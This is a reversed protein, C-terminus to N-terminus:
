DYLGLEQSLRTLEALGKDCERDRIQKYTMLDTFRIRRHTGVMRFPLVNQELLKVLYPRSVNLLEAAEQTTLEKDFPVLHVAQGRALMGIIAKLLHFVSQPILIREGNAGILQASSEDKPLAAELRKIDPVEAEPALVPELLASQRAM